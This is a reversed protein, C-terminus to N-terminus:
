HANNCARAVTKPPKGIRYQKHRVRLWKLWHNCARPKSWSLTPPEEAFLQNLALQANYSNHDNGGVARVLEWAHRVAIRPVRYGAGVFGSTLWRDYAWGRRRVLVSRWLAQRKANHKRSMTPDSWETGFSLNTLRRLSYAARERIAADPDRLLSVLADTPELRGLQGSADIAALQVAQQDRLAEALAGDVHLELPELESILEGARALAQPLLSLPSPPSGCRLTAARLADWLAAVPPTPKGVALRLFLAAERGGLSGLTQLIAISVDFDPEYRLRSILVPVEARGALEALARTAALRVDRDDDSMRRAIASRQKMAGLLALRQVAHKREAADDATLRTAVLEIHAQKEKDFTDIWPHVVGSNQCGGLVDRKSCYIRVHLHDNHAASAGPQRVVAAAREILKAPEGQKTAHAILAKKLAHSIFLYQVQVEPHTMLAKVVIWNREVDFFIPRSPARGSDGVPVLDPPDFPKNRSDRYAFALDADRGSNHSVSYSIDGGGERSLNGLWLKTSTKRHLEAAAYHILAVMEDTGHALARAKHEPLIALTDDESIVAGGVLYGNSTDGVSVSVDATEDALFPFPRAAADLSTACM